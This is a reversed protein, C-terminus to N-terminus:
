AANSEEVQRAGSLPLADLAEKFIEADREKDFSSIVRTSGKIRVAYKRPQTKIVEHETKM